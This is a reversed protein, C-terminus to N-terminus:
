WPDRAFLDKMTADELNNLKSHDIFMLDPILLTIPVEDAISYHFCPEKLKRLSEIVEPDFELTHKFNYIHERMKDWIDPDTNFVMAEVFSATLVNGWIELYEKYIPYTTAFIESEDGTMNGLFARIYDPKSVVNEMEEDSAFNFDPHYRKGNFLNKLGYDYMGQNNFIILNALAAAFEKANRVPKNYFHEEGSAICHDEYLLRGDRKCEENDYKLGTYYPYTLPQHHLTGQNHVCSLYIYDFERGSYYPVDEVDEEYNLQMDLLDGYLDGMAALWGCERQYEAYLRNQTETNGLYDCVYKIYDNIFRKGYAPSGDTIWKGVPANPDINSRAYQLAGRHLPILISNLWDKEYSAHLKGLPYVIDDNNIYHPNFPTFKNERPLYYYSGNHLNFGDLGCGLVQCHDYHIGYFNDEMRAKINDEYLKRKEKWVRKRCELESEGEEPVLFTRLREEQSLANYTARKAITDDLTEKEFAEKAAAARDYCLDAEKAYQSSDESLVLKNQFVGKARLPINKSWTRYGAFRGAKFEEEVFENLGGQIYSEEAGYGHVAWVANEKLEALAANVMSQDLQYRYDQWYLREEPERLRLYCEEQFKQIAPTIYIDALKDEDLPYFLEMNALIHLYYERDALAALLKKYTEEYTEAFEDSLTIKRREYYKSKEIVEVERDIAIIDVNPNITKAAIRHGEQNFESIECYAALNEHINPQTM